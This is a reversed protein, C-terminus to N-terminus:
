WSGRGEWKRMEIGREVGAKEQNGLSLIIYKYTMEYKLSRGLIEDRARALGAGVGGPLTLNCTGAGELSRGGLRGRGEMGGSGFAEAADALGGEGIRERLGVGGARRRRGNQGEGLARERM